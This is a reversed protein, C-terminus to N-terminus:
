TKITIGPLMIIFVAIAVPLGIKILLDPINEWNAKSLLFVCLSVTVIVKAVRLLNKKNYLNM